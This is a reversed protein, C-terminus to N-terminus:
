RQAPQNLGNDFEDVRVGAYLKAVLDTVNFGHLYGMLAAFEPTGPQHGQEAIFRAIFQGRVDSDALVDAVLQEIYLMEVGQERLTTAFEDHEVQAIKLYPTDDFLLEHMTEPTINELEAGPRKLLVTRLRGIESNM